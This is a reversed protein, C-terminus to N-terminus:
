IGTVQEIKIYVKQKEVDTKSASPDMGAMIIATYAVKTNSTTDIWTYRRHEPGSNSANYIGPNAWAGTNSTSLSSWTNGNGGGPIKSPIKLSGGADGLYGGYETNYNWMITKIIESNNRILVNNESGSDTPYTNNIATATNNQISHRMFVNITYLGDPTTASVTYGKVKTDPDTVFKMNDMVAITKIEANLEKGVTISNCSVLNPNLTNFPTLDFTIGVPSTQPAIPIGSLSFNLIGSGNDLKGDSIVAKINTNGVSSLEIGKYKGGNANSYSIKILSGEIIPKSLIGDIKQSPDLIPNNCHLTALAEKSSSSDLAMWEDGDWFYYGKPLTKGTNYVLLSIPQNSIDNDGDSNLDFDKSKLDVQPIMIGRYKDTSSLNMITYDSPSINGISLQGQKTVIFDNSQEALTPTTSNDGKGDIHFLGYPNSTNIGVQSYSFSAFLLATFSLKYIFRNSYNLKLM